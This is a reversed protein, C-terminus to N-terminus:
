RTPFIKEREIQTLGRTIRVVKQPEMSALVSAAKKPKMMRIIVVVMEEDLASLRTAADEPPMSEYTKVIHTLAESKEAEIRDLIEKIEELLRTYKKIKKEIEERLLSLREEELQLEREKKDLEKQKMKIVQLIDDEGYIYPSFCLLSFIILITFALLRM